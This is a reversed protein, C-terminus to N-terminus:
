APLEQGATYWKKVALLDIQEILYENKNKMWDGYDPGCCGDV